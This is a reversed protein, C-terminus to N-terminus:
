IEEWSKDTQILKKTADSGLDLTLEKGSKQGFLTGESLVATLVDVNIESIESTMINKITLVGFTDERLDLEEEQPQWKEEVEFNDELIINDEESGTATGETQLENETVPSDQVAAIEIIDGEEVDVDMEDISDSEEEIQATQPPGQAESISLLPTDFKSNVVWALAGCIVLVLAKAAIPFMGTTLNMSGTVEYMICDVILLATDMVIATLLVKEIIARELYMIKSSIESLLRFPSLLLSTFVIRVLDLLDNMDNEHKHETYRM